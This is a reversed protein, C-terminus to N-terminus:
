AKINNKLLEAIVNRTYSGLHKRDEKELDNAKFPKGYEIVVNVPKIRPFQKEFIGDSNTIAVPVIPCNLKEAIKLSGEKFPLMEDGHGRTGEPFIFVSAGSKIQEIADLITKLGAKINERDLFLCRINRMWTSLLPVKKFEIKAIFGTIGIVYIYNIIVDFYSRHNGVYLVAQDRPINDRGKVEVNAGSIFLIVRFAWRIIARSSVDKAKPNHKGIVWEVFMLPISCILFLVVFIISLLFRIM